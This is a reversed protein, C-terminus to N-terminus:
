QRSSWPLQIFEEIFISLPSILNALPTKGVEAFGGISEFLQALRRVSCKARSTRNAVLQNANCARCRWFDLLDDVLQWRDHWGTIGSSLRIALEAFELWWEIRPLLSDFLHFQKAVGQFLM